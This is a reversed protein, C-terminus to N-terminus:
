YVRAGASRRLPWACRRITLGDRCNIRNLMAEIPERMREGYNAIANAADKCNREVNRALAVTVFMANRADADRGALASAVAYTNWDELRGTRFRSGRVALTHLALQRATEPQAPNVKLHFAALNGAIEPDYPNAGFARLELDFAEPINRRTWYAKLAEDNFRRAESARIGPSSPRATGSGSPRPSEVVAQDQGPDLASAATSLVRDVENQALVATRPVDEALTRRARLVFGSDRARESQASEALAKVM